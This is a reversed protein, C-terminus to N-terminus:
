KNLNGFIDIWSSVFFLIKMKLTDQKLVKKQIKLYRFKFTVRKPAIFCFETYFQPIRYFDSYIKNERTFIVIGPGTKSKKEICSDAISMTYGQNNVSFMYAAINKLFVCHDVNMNFSSGILVQSKDKGCKNGIINCYSVTHIFSPQSIHVLFSLSTGSTQSNERFTSFSCKGSKGLLTVVLSSCQICKNFSINNNEFNFDGYTSLFTYDGKQDSEGCKSVSIQFNYNKFSSTQGVAQYFSVCIYQTKSEFYYNRQQVIEGAQPCYYSVSGGKESSQCRSFVNVELLTCIQNTRSIYIAGKPKCEEFNCDYVYYNNTTSSDSFPNGDKTRTVKGKTGFYDNWGFKRAHNM